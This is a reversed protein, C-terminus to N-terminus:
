MYTMVIQSTSKCLNTYSMLIDWIELIHKLCLAVRRTGLNARTHKRSACQFKCERSLCWLNSIFIDHDWAEQKLETPTLGHHKKETTMNDVLVRLCDRNDHRLAYRLSKGSFGSYNVRMLYRLCRVNGFWVADHINRRTVVLRRDEILYQLIEPNDTGIAAFVCTKDVPAHIEALLDLCSYHRNGIAYKMATTHIPQNDYSLYEVMKDLLGFKAFRAITMPSVDGHTVWSLVNEHELPCYEFQYCKTIRKSQAAFPRCVDM